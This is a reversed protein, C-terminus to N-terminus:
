FVGTMGGCVGFGIVLMIVGIILYTKHKKKKEEDPSNIKYIGFIILSFVALWYTAFLFFMLTIFYDERM